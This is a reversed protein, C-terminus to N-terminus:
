NDRSMADDSVDTSRDAWGCVLGGSLCVVRCVLSAVRCLIYPFHMATKKRVKWPKVGLTELDKLINDAYEQKEKSPNTDDFRVLLKGLRTLVAIFPCTFVRWPLLPYTFV